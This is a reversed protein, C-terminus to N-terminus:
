PQAIILASCASCPQPTHAFYVPGSKPVHFGLVLSLYLAGNKVVQLVRVSKALTLFLQGPINKRVWNHVCVM